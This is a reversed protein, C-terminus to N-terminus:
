IKKLNVEAVKTFRDILEIICVDDLYKNIVLELLMDNSIIELIDLTEIGRKEIGRIIKQRIISKILPDKEIEMNIIAEEFSKKDPIEIDFKGNPNITIEM